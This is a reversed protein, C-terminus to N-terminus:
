GRASDLDVVYERAGVRDAARHSDAAVLPVANEDRIVERQDGLDLESDPPRPSKAGRGSIDTAVASQRAGRFFNFIKRIKKSNGPVKRVERRRYTHFFYDPSHWPPESGHRYPGRLLRPIMDVLFNLGGPAVFGTFGFFDFSERTWLASRCETLRKMIGLM